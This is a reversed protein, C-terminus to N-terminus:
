PAEELALRVALDCVSCRYRGPIVDRGCSICAGPSDPAGPLVLLLLPKGDEIFARAQERFIIARHLVERVTERDPELRERVGRPFLLKPRDPPDWLVKGGQALADTLLEVPGM